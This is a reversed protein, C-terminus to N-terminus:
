NYEDLLTKKYLATLEKKTGTPNKIGMKQLTEIQLDKNINKFRKVQGEAHAPHLVNSTYDKNLYNYLNGFFTAMSAGRKELGYRLWRQKVAGEIRNCANCLVARVHGSEHDHDLVPKQWELDQECIPCKGGQEEFMVQKMEPIEKRSLLKVM